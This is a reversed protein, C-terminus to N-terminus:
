SMMSQFTSFYFNELSFCESLTCVSSFHVNLASRHISHPLINLGAKINKNSDLNAKMIKIVNFVNRRKYIYICICIYIYIYTHTHTHTVNWFNNQNPELYNHVIIPVWIYIINRMIVCASVLKQQKINKHYCHHMRQHFYHEIFDM